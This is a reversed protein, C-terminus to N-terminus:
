NAELCVSGQLNESPETEPVGGNAYVFASRHIREQSRRVIVFGKESM